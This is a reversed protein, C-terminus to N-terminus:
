PAHRAATWLFSVLSLHFYFYFHPILSRVDLLSSRFFLCDNLRTRSVHWQSSKSCKWNRIALNRLLLNINVQLMTAPSNTHAKTILIRPNKAGDWWDLARSLWIWACWPGVVEGEDEGKDTDTDAGPDLLIGIGTGADGIKILISGFLSCDLRPWFSSKEFGFISLFSTWFVLLLICFVVWASVPAVCPRM